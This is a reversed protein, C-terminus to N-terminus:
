LYIMILSHQKVLAHQYLFSVIILKARRLKRFKPVHNTALSRMFYNMYVHKSTSCILNLKSKLVLTM